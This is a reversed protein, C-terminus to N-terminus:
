TAYFYCEQLCFMKHKFEVLLSKLYAAYRCVCSNHSAAAALLCSNERKRCRAHQCIVLLCCIENVNQMSLCVYIQFSMLSNNLLVLNIVQRTFTYLLLLLLFHLSHCFLLFKTGHSLFLDKNGYKKAYSVTSSNDLTLVFLIESLVV